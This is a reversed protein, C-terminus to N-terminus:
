LQIGKMAVDYDSKEKGITRMGRIQRELDKIRDEYEVEKAASKGHLNTMAKRATDLENKLKVNESQMNNIYEEMAEGHDKGPEGTITITNGNPDTFITKNQDEAKAVAKTKIEDMAKKDLGIFRNFLNTKVKDWMTMKATMNANVAARYEDMDGNFEVKSKTM